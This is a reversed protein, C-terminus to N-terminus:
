CWTAMFLVTSVTFATELPERDSAEVKQVELKMPANLYDLIFSAGKQTM